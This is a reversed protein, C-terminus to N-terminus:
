DTPDNDAYIATGKFRKDGSCETMIRSILSRLEKDSSACSLNVRYRYRNNLKVVSHPTPGLVLCDNRGKLMVDFFSRIYRCAGVVQAEDAGSVTVSFLRTFPPLDHLRRMEIEARYFEDYDQRAAQLITENEPTFTQIVARGPKQGRGSRGVVQTILSFTRESARYDGAYLSQDASIVGVLTVNEFNLGKTVMQTGVMIPINENRFREFLREHSGAPAVSDTDMRLIERGPFLEELEDVVLQTGAGIFNLQGGCDPCKADLRRSYGCYHCILRGNAGHYTLSVSCRPCKYTYGCEGCSILKNTGRRNLFLISQEGRALNEELEERLISSINGGNGRRLERKMDVIKVVPLAQDNFRSDLRFYAYRGCEANYRSTIDPTASGLLLMAQGKACRFRAIDRANYRPANESRYTEEQEEDIIILGLADVPAFVASRTGIVVHAKGRKIRKWEDYREGPALSSHLVAIENGFHSSFTRLMQPTLAIEPVLLIASHGSRLCKDILRIYVSTKGSGTVGHLLAACAEHADMLRSLGDYAAQQQLNLVPMPACEDLYLAPRRFLEQQYLEVIGAKVLATLSQRSAGLHRLLDPSPLAEFACLQEIIAAQKKARSSRAAYACEAEDMSVALRAMEVTKDSVRPASDMGGWVGAPLMAKAAEYVTCFFHERMFLALRVQEDSLSAEEDIVALVAKLQPYDSHGTLALVIGECRRNGNAFPIYVRMGVAIKDRMSEPVLYDYPRDIAYTAASVAIKAILRAM